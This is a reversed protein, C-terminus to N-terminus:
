SQSGSVPGTKDAARGQKEQFARLYATPEAESGLAIDFMMRVTMIPGPIIDAGDIERGDVEANTPIEVNVIWWTEVKRLLAVLDPFLALHDSTGGSLVLRAMEHAIRNRCEKLKEFIALDCHHIAGLEHLWSLSAYVPSRNRSLVEQDYKPDVHGGAEDYRFTYFSSLRDVISEKLMEFAALYISASILKSRLVEPSLFEEWSDVTTNPPM